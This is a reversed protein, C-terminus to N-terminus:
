FPFVRRTKLIYTHLFFDMNELRNQMFDGAYHILANKYEKKPDIRGCGFIYIDDTLISRDTLDRTNFYVNMFSQEYFSEGTYNAIMNRINAFHQKMSDNAFFLFCGANFIHINHKKFFSLQEETYNKLSWEIREHFSYEPVETYVYLKEPNKMESFLMKISCNVLMDADIFIVKEYGSIFDFINLKHMSAEYKSKSDECPCIKVNYCSLLRACEGIFSLDCILLIDIYPEFVRLSQISMVLLQIYTPNYGVTYYVLNRGM